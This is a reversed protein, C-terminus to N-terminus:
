ASSRVWGPNGKLPATRRRQGLVVFTMACRGQEGGQVREVARDNGATITTVTVVFPKGEQILNVPFGGLVFCQMQNEVVVGNGSQLIYGTVPQLPNDSVNENRCQTVM